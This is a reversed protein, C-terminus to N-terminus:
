DNKVVFKITIKDANKPTKTVWFPSFSVNVDEVGQVDELQQQVEGARKGTIQSALAKEDINPGVQAAARAKVKYENATKSFETFAASEDGSEYIKQNKDGAIQTKTYTDFIARLDSREIGVLRYTTQASLKASSAEQGVAPSSAPDAPEITFSEDIVVVTEEFEKKLESKVKNSDQAELAEYAKDVDAQSVVTVTKDTGGATEGEFSGSIGDPEGSVSGSEGNYKAGPSAATVSGSATGPTGTCTFITPCSVAGAPVTVSSDLTYALNNGSVLQTGAAITKSSTTNNSFTIEGTAKEGVDKKGTPTFDISSTKKTEKVIAAAVGQAADLKADPRLVLGKNINVINTNATIAVTARAAFFIAWILFVILLAGLGGFIFLKKRFRDFDPVASGKKPARAAAKAAFPAAVAAGPKDTTAAAPFGTLELPKDSTKALEGVPLEEGNIVEEGASANTAATPVEPRSQLNKAVPMSVGAALGVLAQDNTILVVRKKASTAARQLLKLNVVSQLVGIRKPPVLAVITSKADKVKGIVSTIDDEIDVYIVDKKPDTSM